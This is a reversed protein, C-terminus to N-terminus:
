QYRPFIGTYKFKDYIEKPLAHQDAIHKTDYQLYEFSGIKDYNYLARREGNVTRVHKKLFHNERLINRIKGITFKKKIDYGQEGLLHHICQYSYNTELFIEM